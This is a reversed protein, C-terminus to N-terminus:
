SQVLAKTINDSLESLNGSTAAIRGSAAEVEKDSSSGDLYPVVSNKMQGTEDFMADWMGQVKEYVPTPPQPVMLKEMEKRISVYSMLLKQREPSDASFPPYNKVIAQANDHLQELKVSAQNLGENTERVGKALQNIRAHMQEIAQVTDLNKSTTSYKIKVSDSSKESAQIAHETITKNDSASIQPVTMQGLKQYAMAQQTANSDKILPKIEM